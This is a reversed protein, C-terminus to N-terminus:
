RIKECYPSSCGRLPPSARPQARCYPEVSVQIGKGSKGSDAPLRGINNQTVGKADVFADDDIGVDGRTEARSPRVCVCSGTFISLVQHFQERAVHVSSLWQSM